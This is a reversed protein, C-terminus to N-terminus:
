IYHETGSLVYDIPSATGNGVQVVDGPELVIWVEATVSGASTNAAGLDIERLNRGSSLQLFARNSSGAVNYVNISKLIARQGAPVTYATTWGTTSVRGSYLQHVRLQAM